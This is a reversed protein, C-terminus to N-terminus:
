KQRKGEKYDHNKIKGIEEKIMDDWKKKKLRKGEKRKTEPKMRSSSKWVDEKKSYKGNNWSKWTNIVGLDKVRAKVM